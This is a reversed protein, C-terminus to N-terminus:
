SPIKAPTSRAGELDALFSYLREGVRFHKSAVPEGTENHLEALCVVGDHSAIHLSTADRALILGNCFPHMPLSDARLSAKRARYMAARYRFMAGAYPKSFARVFRVIDQANWQFDLWAHVGSDLRPFQTALAHDQERAPHSEGRAIAFALWRAAEASALAASAKVDAPYPEAPLAQSASFLVPGADLAPLLRQVHASIATEANLVQWSGGGAGRYRPLDGAHINFLRDAFADILARPFLAHWGLVLGIPRQLAAIMPLLDAIAQASLQLSECRWQPDLQPLARASDQVLLLKGPYAEARLTRIFELAAPQCAILVVGGSDARLDIISMAARGRLQVRLAKVACELRSCHSQYHPSEYIGLADRPPNSMHQLRPIIRWRIRTRFRQSRAM